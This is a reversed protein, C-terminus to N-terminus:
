SKYQLFHAPKTHKHWWGSWQNLNNVRPIKM